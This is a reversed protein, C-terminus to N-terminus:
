SIKIMDGQVETKSGGDIKMSNDAKQEWTSGAYMQVKANADQLIDNAEVTYKEAVDINMNKGASIAVNDGVDLTDNNTISIMRNKGATEDINEGIDITLNKGATENINEVAERNMDVGAKMNINNEAEMIIDNKAYLEINGTSELKILKEDTSFTLIYNEKENDYIRIYGGEGQDYIEVTHGNRTRIAKVDNTDNYWNSGPRQQGHYLTGIVYPKEANGNEFGVMVEEDIEPIFYFGKNDGGHPQTIRLWPTLLSADQLEQWLFQVRIRGLKEPDQNDKVIARQPEATPYLDYDTYPPFQTGGAVAVVENEYHGNVNVRHVIRCILLEEHDKIESTGNDKDYFEQIIIKSGLCLDVRNTTLRCVMMQAKLGLAQVQLSKEIQNISNNEATSSHLNQFTTKSFATKSHNYAYDTLPHLAQPSYNTALDSSNEYDLYNHHGHSFNPHEMNLEYDYGIIDIDPYLNISSQSKLEGFVMSGDEYYFFEGYRQALRSLFQYTNENYQVVYPIEDQVRPNITTNITGSYDSIVDEVINKLSKEEFSYCHPNDILLYDPSFAIINILAGNGMTEKRTSVNSIIGEFYLNEHRLNENEDRQVTTIECIIVANLLDNSLSLNIDEKTKLLSKRRMSFQLENPQLLGKSLVVNIFEYEEYKKGNIKIELKDILIPM